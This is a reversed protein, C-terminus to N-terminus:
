ILFLNICRRIRFDLLRAQAVIAPVLARMICQGRVGGGGGELEGGGRVAVFSGM